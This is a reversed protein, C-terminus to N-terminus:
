WHSLRVYPHISMTIVLSSIPDEQLNSWLHAKIDKSLFSATLNLFDNVDPDLFKIVSEEVYPM